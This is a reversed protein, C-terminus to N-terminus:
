NKLKKNRGDIHLNPYKDTAILMLENVEYIKQICLCENSWTMNQM